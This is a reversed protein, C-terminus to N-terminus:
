AGHEPEGGRAAAFGLVSIVERFLQVEGTSHM